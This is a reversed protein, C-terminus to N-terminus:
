AGPHCTEIQMKSLDSQFCWLHHGPSGVSPIHPLISSTFSVLFSYVSIPSINSSFPTVIALALDFKIFFPIQLFVKINVRGLLPYARM